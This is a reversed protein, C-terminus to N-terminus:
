KLKLTTEIRGILEEKTVPKAIFERGGIMGEM